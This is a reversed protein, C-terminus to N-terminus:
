ARRSMQGDGSLGDVDGLAELLRCHSILDQDPLRRVSEDAVRDDDLRASRARELVALRDVGKDDYIYGGADGTTHAAAEVRGEDPAYALTGRELGRKAVHDAIPGAVQQGHEATRTHALRSEHPLERAPESGVHRDQAAAAQGIALADGVPRQSLNDPLN